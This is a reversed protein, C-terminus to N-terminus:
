NGMGLTKLFPELSQPRGLFRAISETADRSDGPEYIERRLRLGAQTDFYGQPSNEFVTALDAAIVDAWAYGYYGADYGTLHGFYAVFASGAPVPLFVDSLIQNSLKLADVGAQVQTHLALDTLAFCLQRRYFTAITATKAAQLQDLIEGPIKKSPDRYDAAFRDLVAKEWVWNELVQSPAEVFDRPVSTGAFRAHNARTLISHLAHGFEHFLTEVEKHTLLSPRDPQPTPFNCILAVTPRQYLGDPRRKGDILGFQAFHNYKGERPFMDLYFLGLPEGTAADAVAYLQLDAVWRYPPTVREFTLGFIRQYIEFMGQLVTQYSFYVRLQEADVNYQEKQLQNGYYATDWLAIRADPNGTERAKLAAFAKIEAEFKPQLRARLDECFRRATAADKAMKPEIQYDAWTAYGLEQAIRHRLELIQQLLPVNEEEALSYRAECLRKRTAELRANNMVTVYQFTVNAMITYEDPGTQIGPQNLFTAPVGELEARTFKLPQRAHNINRDFDTALRALEKRMREAEDRQSRPLGLGARRYDRLTEKLLKADESALAPNTDAFAKVAAYVDERYDLGVAWQQFVKMGDTAAARLAANTSTEKILDLRNGTQSAEWMLDDLARVTNAFTVQKLDTRGIVDLAANARNMTNSVSQWLAAPTTEFEPVRIVANFKRAQRQWDALSRTRPAKTAPEPTRCATLFCFPLLLLAVRMM